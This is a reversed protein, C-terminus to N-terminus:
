AAVKMKKNPPQVEEYEYENEDEEEGKGHDIGTGADDRGNDSHTWTREPLWQLLDETDEDVGLFIFKNQDNMKNKVEAVHEKVIQRIRKICSSRERVELTSTLATFYAISQTPYNIDMVKGLSLVLTDLEHSKQYESLSRLAALMYPGMKEAILSVSATPPNTAMLYAIHKLHMSLSKITYTFREITTHNSEKSPESSLSKQQQQQQHQRVEMVRKNHELIEVSIARLISKRSCLLQFPQEGVGYHLMLKLLLPSQLLLKELFDCIIEGIELTNDANNCICLEYFQLLIRIMISGQVGDYTNLHQNVMLSPEHQKRPFMLRQDRQLQSSNTAPSSGSIRTIRLTAEKAEIRSAVVLSYLSEVVFHLVFPIKLLNPALRLLLLPQTVLVSYNACRKLCHVTPSGSQLTMRYQLDILGNFTNLTFSNPLPHAIRLKSWVEWLNSQHSIHESAIIAEPFVNSVIQNVQEISMHNLALHVADIYNHSKIDIMETFTATLDANDIADNVENKEESTINKVGIGLMSTFEDVILLEPNKRRCAVLLTNLMCYIQKDHPQKAIASLLYQIARKIPLERINIAFTSVGLIHEDNSIIEYLVAFHISLLAKVLGTTRETDSSNKNDISMRNNVSAAKPSNIEKIIKIEGSGEKINGFSERKIAVRHQLLCILARAIVNTSEFHQHDKMTASCTSTQQLLKQLQPDAMLSPISWDEHTWLQIKNLPIMMTKIENPLIPMACVSPAHKSTPFRGNHVLRLVWAQIIANVHSHMPWISRELVLDLPRKSSTELFSPTWRPSILMMHLCATWDGPYETSAGIATPPVLSTFEENLFFKATHPEKTFADMLARLFNNPSNCGFDRMNRFELCGLVFEQAARTIASNGTELVADKRLLGKDLRWKALSSSSTNSDKYEKFMPVSRSNMGLYSISRLYFYVCKAEPNNVNCLELLYGLCNHMCADFGKADLKYSDEQMGIALLSLALCMKERALAPYKTITDNSTSSTSEIILEAVKLYVNRSDLRYDKGQHDVRYKSCLGHLARIVHKLKFLNKRPDNDSSNDSLTHVGVRQVLVSIMEELSSSSLASLLWHSAAGVHSIDNTNAITTHKQTVNLTTSLFEPLDLLTTNTIHICIEPLIRNETLTTRVIRAYYQINDFEVDLEKTIGDNHYCKVGYLDEFKECKCNCSALALILEGICYRTAAVYNVNMNNTNIDHIHYDSKYNNKSESSLERYWDVLLQTLHDCIPPCNQVLRCSLNVAMPSQFIVRMVQHFSFLPTSTSDLDSLIALTLCIPIIIDSISAFLPVCKLLIMRDVVYQLNNSNRICDYLEKLVMDFREILTSKEYLILIDSPIADYNLSDFSNSSSTSKLKLKDVSLKWILLLDNYKPHISIISSIQNYYNANNNDNISCKTNNKENMIMILFANIPFNVDNIQIKKSIEFLLSMM